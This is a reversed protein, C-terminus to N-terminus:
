DSYSASSDYLRYFFKNGSDNFLGAIDKEKFQPLKETLNAVLQKGDAYMQKIKSDHSTTRYAWLWGYNEPDLSHEQLWHLFEQEDEADVLNKEILKRYEFLDSNAAGIWFRDTVIGKDGWEGLWKRYYVGQNSLKYMTKWVRQSAPKLSEDSMLWDGTEYMVLQYALPGFSAVGASTNVDYLGDSHSSYNVYGVVARKSLLKSIFTASPTDPSIEGMDWSKKQMSQLISTTRSTSILVISHETPSEEEWDEYDDSSIAVIGKGLADTATKAAENVYIIPCLKM